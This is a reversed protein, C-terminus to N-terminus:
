ILRRLDRAAAVISELAVPTLEQHVPLAVARRRRSAIGPFREVPTVPHFALWFPYAGIGRGRFRDVVEDRDDTEFLFAFPSAGEPLVAFPSPVSERLEELLASFNVRRRAAAEPGALRPILLRTATSPSTDPDGFAFDAAPDYPRDRRLSKGLEAFVASREMLWAVHRRALVSGGLAPRGTPAPPPVRSLVAAGDPFGFTKYLCFFSLDGHTGVPAGASSALWAQAADEVLLLGREDAWRRWRLADQPFGLYHIVYLVRVTPTLLSELEAEDPALDEDGAYFRCTLGLQILTEVESGHHYAPVLVEDGQELGLAQL